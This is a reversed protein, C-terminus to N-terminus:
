RLRDMSRVLKEDKMIGRLALILFVIALAPLLAGPIQYQENVPTPAQNKLSGIRMMMVSFFGMCAFISGLVMGRQTKRNNFLFVAIFPLLTMVATIILLPYFQSVQLTQVTTGIGPLGPIDYKYIPFVFLLASTLAALLLWLTQIRQIM